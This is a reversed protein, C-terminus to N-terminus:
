VGPSLDPVYTQFTHPHLGINNILRRPPFPSFTINCCPLLGVTKLPLTQFWIIMNKKAEDVEEARGGSKKRKTLCVGFSSHVAAGNFYFTDM